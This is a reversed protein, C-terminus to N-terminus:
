RGFCLNYNTLSISYFTNRLSSVGMDWFLSSLLFNGLGTRLKSLNFFHFPQWYFGDELRRRKGLLRSSIQDRQPFNDIELCYQSISRLSPSYWVSKARIRATTSSPANILRRENTRSSSFAKPVQQPGHPETLLSPPLPFPMLRKPSPSGLKLFFSAHPEAPRQSPNPQLCLLLLLKQLHKIMARETPHGLFTQSARNPNLSMSQVSPTNLPYLAGQISLRRTWSLRRM